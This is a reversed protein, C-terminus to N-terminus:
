ESVVKVRYFNILGTANRDTFTSDTTGGISDAPFPVLNFSANRYIVYRRGSLPSGLSDTNVHNWALRIGYSSGYQQVVLDDIPPIGAPTPGIQMTYISSLNASSSNTKEVALIYYDSYPATYILSESGGNGTGNAM